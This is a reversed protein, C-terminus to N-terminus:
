RPFATALYDLILAREVPTIKLGMRVMDDIKDNWGDRTHGTTSFLNSLAHCESCVRATLERNPGEPMRPDIEASAIHVGLAVFAVTAIICCAIKM